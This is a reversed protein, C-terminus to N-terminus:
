APDLCLHYDACFKLTTATINSSGSVCFIRRAFQVDPCTNKDLQVLYIFAAIIREKCYKFDADILENQHYLHFQCKSLFDPKQPFFFFQILCFQTTGYVHCLSPNRINFVVSVFGADIIQFGKASKEIDRCVIEESERLVKRIGFLV